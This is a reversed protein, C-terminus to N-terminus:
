EKGWELILEDFAELDSDHTNTHALPVVSPYQDGVVETLIAKGVDLGMSLVFHCRANRDLNPAAPEYMANSQTFLIQSGRRCHLVTGDHM